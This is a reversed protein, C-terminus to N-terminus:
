VGVGTIDGKDGRMGTPWGLFEGQHNQEFDVLSQIIEGIRGGDWTCHDAM